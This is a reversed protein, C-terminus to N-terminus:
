KDKMEKYLPMRNKYTPRVGLVPFFFSIIFISHRHILKHSAIPWKVIFIFTFHGFLIHPYYIFSSGHIKIYKKLLQCPIEDM